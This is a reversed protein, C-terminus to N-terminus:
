RMFHSGPPHILHLNAERCGAATNCAISKERAIADSAQYVWALAACAMEPIAM